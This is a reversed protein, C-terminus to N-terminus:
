FFHFPSSIEDYRSISKHVNAIPIPHFLEIFCRFIIKRNEGDDCVPFAFTCLTHFWKVWWKMQIFKNVIHQNVRPFSWLKSMRFWNLGATAEKMRYETAFNLIKLMKFNRLLTTDHKRCAGREKRASMHCWQNWIESEYTRAAVCQHTPPRSSTKLKQSSIVCQCRCSALMVVAVRKKSMFRMNKLKVIM